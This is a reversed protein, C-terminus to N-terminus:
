RMFKQKALAVAGFEPSCLPSKLLRKVDDPLVNIYPKALGGIMSVRAPELKVLQLLVRHVYHVAEDVIRKAHSDGEQSLTLVLPALVAYDGPKFHLAKAVVDASTACDLAALVRASLDTQPLLGDAMELATSLARWGLWAGSAKDGLPFGHGGLTSIKGNVLAFASSGTGTILIAGENGGHAGVCAIHLDTTVDLNAFPHNWEMVPTRYAPINAGALGMVAHCQSIMTAPLSASVLAKVSADTISEFAQVANQAPNAPGSLGEGMLEGNQDELRVKCKTGGGDIGLFLQQSHTRSYKQAHEQSLGM